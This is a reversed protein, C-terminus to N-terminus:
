QGRDHGRHAWLRWVSGYGPGGSVTAPPPCQQGRSPPGGIALSLLLGAALHMDEGQLAEIQEWDQRRKFADFLRLSEVADNVWQEPGRIM